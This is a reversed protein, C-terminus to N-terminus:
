KEYPNGNIPYFMGKVQNGYSCTGEWRSGDQYTYVGFGHPMDNQFDGYYVVGNFYIKGKGNYNGKYYEGEYILSSDANFHKGSGHKFGDEFYGIYYSKNGSNFCYVGRGHYEDTKKSQQGVYYDGYFDKKTWYYNENDEGPLDLLMKM